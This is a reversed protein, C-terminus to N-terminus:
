YAKPGYASQVRTTYEKHHMDYGRINSRVTNLLESLDAEQKSYRSSASKHAREAWSEARPAAAGGLRTKHDLYNVMSRYYNEGYDFNMGYMKAKPRNWFVPYPSKKKEIPMPELQDEELPVGEGGEVPAQEGEAPAPAEGEAPAAPEDSIKPPWEEEAPEPAPAAPEPEPAPAEEVVEKKKSKKKKKKEDKDAM